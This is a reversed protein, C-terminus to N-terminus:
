ASFNKKVAERVIFEPKVTMSTHTHISLKVYKVHFTYTRLKDADDYQVLLV